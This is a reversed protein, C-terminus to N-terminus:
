YTKFPVNGLNPLKMNDTNVGIANMEWDLYIVYDYAGLMNQQDYPHLLMWEEVDYIPGGYMGAFQYFRIDDTMGVAYERVYTGYKGEIWPVRLM